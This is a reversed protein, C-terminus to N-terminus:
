GSITSLRETGDASFDVGKRIFLIEGQIALSSGVPLRGMVGATLASVAEGDVESEVVTETSSTAVGAKFGVLRVNHQAAAAAPFSVVSAVALVAAVCARGRFGRLISVARM